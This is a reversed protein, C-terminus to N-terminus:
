AGVLDRELSLHPGEMPYVMPDGPGPIWRPEANSDNRAQAQFIKSHHILARDRASLTMSAAAFFTTGPATIHKSGCGNGLRACQSGTCTRDGLLSHTNASSPGLSPHKSWDICTRRQMYKQLFHHISSRELSEAKVIMSPLTVFKRFITQVPGAKSFM